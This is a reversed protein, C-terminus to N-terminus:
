QTENKTSLKRLEQDMRGTLIYFYMQFDARLSWIPHGFTAPRNGEIQFHSYWALAYAVVPAFVLLWWLRSIITIILIIFVFSTGIAHWARTAKKSHQSLYFPWFEQYSHFKM